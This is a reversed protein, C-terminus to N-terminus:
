ARTGPGTAASPHGAAGPESRARRHRSTRARPRRASSGPWGCGAASHPGRTCRRRRGCRGSPPRWRGRRRPGRGSARRGRGPSRGWSRGSSRSPAPSRRRGPPRGRASATRVRPISTRSGSWPSRPSRGSGGCGSPTAPCSWASPDRIRASRRATARGRGPPVARGERGDRGGGGLGGGSLRRCRARAPGRRGARAACGDQRSRPTRDEIVTRLPVGAYVTTTEGEKVRVEVRPRDPLAGPDFPLEEVTPVQALVLGILAVAAGNM